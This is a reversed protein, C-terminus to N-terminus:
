QGPSDNEWEDKDKDENMKMKSHHHVWVRAQNHVPSKLNHTMMLSPTQPQQRTTSPIQSRDEGESVASRTNYQKKKVSTATFKWEGPSTWNTLDDVFVTDSGMLLPLLLTNMLYKLFIRVSYWMMVVLWVSLLRMTSPISMEGQQQDWTPVSHSGSLSSRLKVM